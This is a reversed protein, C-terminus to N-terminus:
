KQSNMRNQLHPPRYVQTSPQQQPVGARNYGGAYNNDNSGQEKNNQYKSNEYTDGCTQQPSSKTEQDNSM